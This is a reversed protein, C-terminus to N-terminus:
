YSPVSSISPGHIYRVTQGRLTVGNRLQVSMLDIGDVVQTVCTYTRETIHLQLLRTKDGLAKFGSEIEPGRVLWLWYRQLTNKSRLVNLLSTALDTTSILVPLVTMCDPTGISSIRQIIELLFRINSSQTRCFTASEQVAQYLGVLKKIAVNSYAVLQSVSAIEGVVNM